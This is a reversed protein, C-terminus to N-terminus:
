FYAYGRVDFIGEIPIQPILKPKIQNHTDASTTSINSFRPTPSHLSINPFRPISFPPHHTFSTSHIPYNLKKIGM